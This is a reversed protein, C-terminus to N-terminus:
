AIPVVIHYMLKEAGWAGDRTMRLRIMLRPLVKTEQMEPM